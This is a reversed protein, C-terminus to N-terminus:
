QVVGLSITVSVKIGPIANLEALMKALGAFPDPLAPPSASKGWGTAPSAMEEPTPGRWASPVPARRPIIGEQILRSAIKEVSSLDLGLEDAIQGNSKGAARGEILAQDRQRLVEEPVHWEGHPHTISEIAGKDILEQICAAAVNQSLGLEKAIDSRKLGKERLRKIDEYYSSHSVRLVSPRQKYQLEGKKILITIRKAVAKRNLGLEVCMEKTTHDPYLQKIRKDISADATVKPRGPSVLTKLHVRRRHMLLSQATGFVKDCETCSFKKPRAPETEEAKEPPLPEPIVEITEPTQGNLVQEGKATIMWFLLNDMTRPRVMGGVELAMLTRQVLDVEKKAERALRVTSIGNLGKFERVISLLKVQLADPPQADTM